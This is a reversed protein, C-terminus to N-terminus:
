GLKLLHSKKLQKKLYIASNKQSIEGPWYTGIKSSVQNQKLKFIFKPVIQTRIGKSGPHPRFEFIIDQMNESPNLSALDDSSYTWSLLYCCGEGEELSYVAGGAGQMSVEGVGM